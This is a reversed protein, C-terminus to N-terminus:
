HIQITFSNSFNVHSNMFGEDRVSEQPCLTKSIKSKLIDLKTGTQYSSHFAKLLKHIYVNTSDFDERNIPRKDIVM